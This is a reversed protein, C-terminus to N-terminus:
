SELGMSPVGARNSPKPEMITQPVKARGPASPKLNEITPGTPKLGSAARTSVGPRPKPENMKRWAEKEKEIRNLEEAQEREKRERKEQMKLRQMEEEQRFKEIEELKRQQEQIEKQRQQQAFM